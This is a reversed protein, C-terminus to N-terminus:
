IQSKLYSIGTEFTVKKQSVENLCMIVDYKEQLLSM